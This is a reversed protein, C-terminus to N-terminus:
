EIWDVPMVGRLANCLFMSAEGSRLWRRAEQLEIKQEKVLGCDVLYARMLGALLPVSNTDVAPTIAFPMADNSRDHRRFVIVVNAISSETLYTKVQPGEHCSASLLVDFCTSPQTDSRPSAAPVGLTAYVRDRATDYMSRYATKVRLPLQDRETLAASPISYKDARVTKAPEPGYHGPLAVSTVQVEGTNAIALRIRRSPTRNPQSLHREVAETVEITDFECAAWDTPYAERMTAVARQLRQLHHMWLPIRELESGEKVGTQEEGRVLGNTDAGSLAQLLPACMQQLAIGQAEFRMTTFVEHPVVPVSWPTSGQDSGHQQQQSSGEQRQAAGTTGRRFDSVGFSQGDAATGGADTSIWQQKEKGDPLITSPPMESAARSKGGFLKARGLLGSPAAERSTSSGAVPHTARGPPGKPPLFVNSPPIMLCFTGAGCKGDNGILHDELLRLNRLNAKFAVDLADGVLPVLGLTCDLVINFLMMCLLAIPLGFLASIFLAYLSLLLGVYDGVGPILGIISDVGVNFPLKRGLFPIADLYFALTRIHNYLRQAEIDTRPPRLAAVYQPKFGQIAERPKRFGNGQRVGLGSGHGGVSTGVDDSQAEAHVVIPNQRVETDFVSRMTLGLVYRVPNLFLGMLGM